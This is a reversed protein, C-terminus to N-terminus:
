SWAGIKVVCTGADQLVGRPGDAARRFAEPAREFTVVRDEDEEAGVWPRVKNGEVMELATALSHRVDEGEDVEAAVSVWAYGVMRKVKARKRGGKAPAQSTSVARRLSRLGLRINENASPIARSPMDGILTTFQAPCVFTKRKRGEDGGDEADSVACSMSPYSALLRQAAEWIEVGGVTDLVGDFSKEEDFMQELVALPEGVFVEEAGWGRIRAEVRERRTLSAGSNSGESSEESEDMDRVASEPVQACVNVKKKALMQLAIAGAGDHANLILIRARSGRGKRAAIVEAFSRVARHAPVGCLPILALDQPTLQNPAPPPASPESANGQSPLSLTRTRTRQRPPFLTAGKTRPQKCRCMRHREIVVYEALAGCKRVDLLGVVWEGRKCVASDVDFGCEAVRGVFSRGPIFGRKKGRVSGASGRKGAKEQVILSDLADLGVAFVQVLIHDTSVFSPPPIHATFAVPLPLTARLHAPTESEKENRRGNKGLGVSLSLRRRTKSLPSSGVSAAVGRVIEITAMSSQAKGSRVLDVQGDLSTKGSKGTYAARPLTLSTYGM